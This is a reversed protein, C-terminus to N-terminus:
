GFRGWADQMAKSMSEWAKDAGARIDSWAASQADRLKHLQAEIEKRREELDELQERYKLRADAQAGDVKAQLKDIDARWEKLKAELKQQYVQKDDM